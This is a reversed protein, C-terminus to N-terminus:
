LYKWPNNIQMRVVSGGVKLELAHADDGNKLLTLTDCYYDITNKSKWEPDSCWLVRKPWFGDKVPQDKQKGDVQKEDIM